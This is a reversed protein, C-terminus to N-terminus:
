AARFGGGGQVVGIVVFSFSGGDKPAKLREVGVALPTILPGATGPTLFM